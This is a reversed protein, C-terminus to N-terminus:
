LNISEAGRFRHAPVGGRRRFGACRRVYDESNATRLVRCVMCASSVADTCANRTVGWCNCNNAPLHNTVSTLSGSARPRLM